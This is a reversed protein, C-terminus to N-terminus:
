GEKKEYEKPKSTQNVPKKEDQNIISGNELFVSGDVSGVRELWVQIGKEESLKKILNLNEDDLKDGEEIWLVKFEPDLALLFDFGIKIRQGTSAKSLPLDNYLVMDDSISIGIDPLNASSLLKNRYQRISEITETEATYADEKEALDLKTQNFEQNLRYQENNDEAEIIKTQLLETNVPQYDKIEAEIKKGAERLEKNEQQLREIENKNQKYKKRLDKLENKKIEYETQMVNIRNLQDTLEIVNVREIIDPNYSSKKLQEKLGRIEVGIDRRKEIRYKEQEDFTSTDINLLNLFMRRQKKPDKEDILALPDALIGAGLIDSLVARTTGVKEGSKTKIEIKPPSKATKYWKIVYDDIEAIVDSRKEGDKVVPENLGGGFVVAEIANLVSTKGAGNNGSITITNSTPIIEVDTLSNFHIIRLKNIKKM